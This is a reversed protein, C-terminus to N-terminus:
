CDDDDEDTVPDLLGRITGIRIPVFLLVLELGLITALKPLLLLLMILVLLLLLLLLMTLGGGGAVVVEASTLVAVLPVLIFVLELELLLVLPENSFGYKCYWGGCDCIQGGCCNLRARAILLRYKDSGNKDAGNGGLPGGMLLLLRM